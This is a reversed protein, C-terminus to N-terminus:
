GGYEGVCDKCVGSEEDLVKLKGCSPCEEKNTAGSQRDYEELEKKIKGKVEKRIEGKAECDYCSCKIGGRKM